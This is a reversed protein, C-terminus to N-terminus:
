GVRPLRYLYALHTTGFNHLCESEIEQTLVAHAKYNMVTNTSYTFFPMSRVLEEHSLDENLLLTQTETHIQLGLCLV